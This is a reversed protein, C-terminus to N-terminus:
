LDREPLVRTYLDKVMKRAIEISYIKLVAIAPIFLIFMALSSKMLSM